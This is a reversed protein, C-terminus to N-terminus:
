RGRDPDIRFWVMEADWRGSATAATITRAFDDAGQVTGPAKKQALPGDGVM